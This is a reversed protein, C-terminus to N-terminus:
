DRCDAFQQAIRVQAQERAEGLTALWARVTDLDGSACAYLFSTRKVMVLRNLTDDLQSGTTFAARAKPDDPAGAYLAREGTKLGRLLGSAERAGALANTCFPLLAAPDLPLVGPDLALQFSTGMDPLAECYARRSGQWSTQKTCGAALAAVMVIRITM